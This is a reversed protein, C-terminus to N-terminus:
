GNASRTARPPTAPSSTTAAWLSDRALNPKRALQLEHRVDQVPRDDLLDERHLTQLRLRRGLRRFEIRHWTVVPSLLTQRCICATFPRCTPDSDRRYCASPMTNSCSCCNTVLRGATLRAASPNMARARQQTPEFDRLEVGLVTQLM